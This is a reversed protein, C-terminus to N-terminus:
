KIYLITQMNIGFEQNTRGMGVPLGFSTKQTQPDVETRHILESRDNKILIRCM